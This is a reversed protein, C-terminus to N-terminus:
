DWFWVASVVAESGFEDMNCCCSLSFSSCMRARSASMVLHSCFYKSSLVMLCNAISAAAVAAACLYSHAQVLAAM